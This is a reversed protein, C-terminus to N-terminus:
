GEEKVFLMRGCHECFYLKDQHNRIEVVKQPPVKSFCGACSNRRVAVTANAHFTRIREYEDLTTASIKGLTERREATLAKLQESHELSHSSLEDEKAVLDQQAEALIKKREELLATLNEEMVGTSRQEDTIRARDNKVTELEHTIADFERNNRVNFQQEAYKAERDRLEQLDIAAKARSDHLATLQQQAEEVDAAKQRVDDEMAKVEDPLDGLEQRIEYLEEDLASLRGLLKMQTEQVM